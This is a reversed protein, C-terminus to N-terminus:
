LKSNINQTKATLINCNLEKDIINALSTNPILIKANWARQLIEPSFTTMPIIVGTDILAESGYLKIIPRQFGLMPLTYKHM